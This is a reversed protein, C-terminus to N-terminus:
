LSRHHPAPPGLFSFLCLCWARVNGADKWNLTKGSEHWEVLLVPSEEDTKTKSDEVSVREQAPGIPGFTALVLQDMMERAQEMTDQEFHPPQCCFPVTRDEDVVMLAPMEEDSEEAVGTEEPVSSAKCGDNIEELAPM